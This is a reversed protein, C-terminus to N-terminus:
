FSLRLDWLGDYYDRRKNKISHKKLYNKKATRRLKVFKINQNNLFTGWILRWTWLVSYLRPGHSPCRARKRWVFRRWRRGRSFWFRLSKKIQNQWWYGVVCETMFNSLPYRCTNSNSDIQTHVYGHDLIDESAPVVTGDHIKIFCALFM